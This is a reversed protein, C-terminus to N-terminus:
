LKVINNDTVPSMPILFIGQFGRNMVKLLTRKKLIKSTTSIPPKLFFQIM